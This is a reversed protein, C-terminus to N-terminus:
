LFRVQRMRNSRVPSINSNHGNSSHQCFRWINAEFADNGHVEFALSRASELADWESMFDDAQVVSHLWKTIIGSQWQSFAMPAICSATNVSAWYFCHLQKTRSSRTNRCAISNSTKQSSATGRARSTTGTRPPKALQNCSSSVKRLRPHMAKAQM